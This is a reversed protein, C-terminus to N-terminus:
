NKTFKNIKQLKGCFESYETKANFDFFSEIKELVVIGACFGKGNGSFVIVRCDPDEGLVKFAEGIERCRFTNSFIRSQFEM